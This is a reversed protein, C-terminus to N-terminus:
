LGKKKNINKKRNEETSCICLRHYFKQYVETELRIVYKRFKFRSYLRSEYIIETYFRLLYLTETMNCRIHSSNYRIFLHFTSLSSIRKLRVTCSEM